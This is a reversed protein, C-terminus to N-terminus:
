SAQLGYPRLSCQTGLFTPFFAAAAIIIVIDAMSYLYTELFYQCIMLHVRYLSTHWICHRASLLPVRRHRRADVRDWYPLSCGMWFHTSLNPPICEIVLKPPFHGRADVYRCLVSPMTERLAFPGKIKSSLSDLRPLNSALINAM